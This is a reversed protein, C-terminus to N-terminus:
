EGITHSEILRKSAPEFCYVETGGAVGWRPRLEVCRRDPFRITVPRYFNAIKEISAHESRAKLQIALKEFPADEARSVESQLKSLRSESTRWQLGFIATTIVLVTCALLPFRKMWRDFRLRRIDAIPRFGVNAPVEAIPPSRVRLKVSGTLERAATDRRDM